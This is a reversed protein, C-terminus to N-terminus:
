LSNAFLGVSVVFPLIYSLMLPFVVIGFAALLALSDVLGLSNYKYAKTPEWAIRMATSKVSYCLCVRLCVCEHMCLVFYVGRNALFVCCM